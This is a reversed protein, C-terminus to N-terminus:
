EKSSAGKKGDQRRLSVQMKSANSLHHTLWGPRDTLIADVGLRMAKEVQRAINCTYTCVKLDRGGAWDVLRQSLRGIPVDIAWLHDTAQAPLRMIHEPHQGPVNYIYRWQPALGHALRLVDLDFCLVHIHEAPTRDSLHALQAVVQRTLRDNDNNAPAKIEILLRTRPAFLSLVQDLTPLPEGAYAAHFWAGWDLQRLQQASVDAVRRRRRAIRWLTADHYIVPVGDASMQVDLEIGDIPYTLAREFASCTNEPAEDRAGRHAVIWPTNEPSRSKM